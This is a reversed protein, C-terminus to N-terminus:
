PADARNRMSPNVATCIAAWGSQSARGAGILMGAQVITFVGRSRRSGDVEVIVFVDLHNPFGTVVGHADIVSADL